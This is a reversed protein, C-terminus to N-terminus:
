RRIRTSPESFSTTAAIASSSSVTTRFSSVHALPRNERDEEVRSAGEDVHIPAADAGRRIKRVPGLLEGVGLGGRDAGHARPDELVRLGGVEFPKREKEIVKEPREIDVKRAVPLARGGPYRL